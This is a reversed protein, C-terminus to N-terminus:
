IINAARLFMLLATVFLFIGFIRRLLLGRARQTLEAGFRAGLVAGAILPAVIFPYIYGNYHYLIAGVTATVAIIFSSTAIAAKMPVGMILNLVPVNVIGGGVGLLSSILGAFFSTGLGHPLHDVKYTVVRGLNHDHYSDAFSTSLNNTIDSKSLNNQSTVNEYQIYRGAIMSYATYFLILGFLVTLVSPAIVAATLGGIIAGPITTTKLLLGLRINTLRNGTYISAATCSTAVITILSSGIAVKIPLHLALTLIPVIFFGGGVGLLSGLIGAILGTGGLAWLNIEPLEM